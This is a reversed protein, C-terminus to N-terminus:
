AVINLSCISLDLLHMELVRLLHTRLDLLTASLEHPLLGLILFNQSMLVLDLLFDLVELLSEVLLSPLRLLMLLHLCPNLPVDFSDNLLAVIELLLILM